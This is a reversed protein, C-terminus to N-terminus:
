ASQWVAEVDITIWVTDGVIVGGKDMTDNWKVGFDHRNIETTAWFAARLKLDTPSGSEVRRNGSRRKGNVSTAETTWLSRFILPQPQPTTRWSSPKAAFTHSSV